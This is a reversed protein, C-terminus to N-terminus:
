LSDYTIRPNLVYQDFLPSVVEPTNLLHDTLVLAPTDRLDKESIVKLLRIALPRQESTTSSM